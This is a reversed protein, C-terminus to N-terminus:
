SCHYFVQLFKYVFLGIEKYDIDINIVKIIPWPLISTDLIRSWRSFELLDVSVGLRGLIMSVMSSSQSGNRGLLCHLLCFLRLLCVSTISISIVGGGLCFCKFSDISSKFQTM